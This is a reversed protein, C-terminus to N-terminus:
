EEYLLRVLEDLAELARLSPRAFTDPSVIFVRSRSSWKQWKQVSEEDSSHGMGAVLVVDPQLAAAEERSLVPYLAEGKASVANVGGALEILKGAFSRPSAAILPSAQLQFLVSVDQKKLNKVRLQTEQLHRRVKEVNEEAKDPVSLVKGLHLLSEELSEFSSIDLLLVPIGAREIRRALSPPNGDKVGICLDPRLSVIKELSPRIYSGVDPLSCAEPPETSFHSRGVVRSGCGLSFLLETVSPAMAVIRQPSASAWAPMLLFLLLVFRFM